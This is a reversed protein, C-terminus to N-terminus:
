EDEEDDFALDLLKKLPLKFGPLLPTKYTENVAVVRKAVKAPPQFYVTMTKQFRDIVWYEKAGLELYEDRKEEYDRLFARRGPGVFEVIITALDRKSKIRRGFGIWLARDVRRIGIRTKVERECMTDDLCKGQRHGDKYNWLLQGLVDNPRAEGDSPPPSVVVVGNILEYRYRPDVEEREIAEFENLSMLLGASDAGLLRTPRSLLKKSPYIANM